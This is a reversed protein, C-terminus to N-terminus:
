PVYQSPRHLKVGPLHSSCIRTSVSSPEGQLMRAANVRLTKRKKSSFMGTPTSNMAKVRRLWRMPSRTARVTTTRASAGCVAGTGGPRMPGASEWSGDEWTDNGFEGPGPITYFIWKQEGTRVDFGRVNGPPVGPNSAEDPLLCGLVVTDRVITPPASFSMQRVNIEREFGKELDVWGGEGFDGYPKGTKANLAVM